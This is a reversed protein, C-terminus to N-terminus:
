FWKNYIEDYTGNEKIRELAKNVQTLLEEDGKKFAIGYKESTFPEGVIKVEPHKSVYVATVPLDNVVASVRGNQLEIFAQPIDKYRTIEISDEMKSIEIDGTTGLKTGVKKGKLDDITKIENNNAMTAIVQGANFYPDSFNVAKARQETITMASIALNFKGTKLGPILGDFAIDKIEIQLNLEDAIAKILDIDFGVIEDQNNHYEFPRYAAETGILLKGEKEIKSWTTDEGGNCGTLVVLTILLLSFLIKKM